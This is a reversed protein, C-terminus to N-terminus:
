RVAADCADTLDFSRRDGTLGMDMRNMVYGFALGADRDAWGTSGGAGFHGFSRGPLPMLESRLMFELM